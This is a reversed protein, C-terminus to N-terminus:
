RADRVETAPVNLFAAASPTVAYTVHRGEWARALVGLESLRAVVGSVHTRAMVDSWHEPLVARTAALLEDPRNNGAEIAGLVSEFDQREGPVFEHVLKAFFEREQPSLTGSASDLAGDLVPNALGALEFGKTTLGLHDGDFEALAYHCVAGPYIEGGRTLRAVYQAGFRDLSPMNGRRPLGTGFLEDRKRGNKVDAAELLSGLTAADFSMGPAVVEVRPWEQIGSTMVKLWRTVLKMPFVRNVQGWLHEGEPRVKTTLPEPHTGNSGVASTHERFANVDGVPVATATFRRRAVPTRSNRGSPV